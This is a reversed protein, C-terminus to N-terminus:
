EDKSQTSVTQTKTTTTTTTTTPAATKQFAAANNAASAHLLNKFKEQLAKHWPSHLEPHRVREVIALLRDYVPKPVVTEVTRSIGLKKATVVATPEGQAGNPDISSSTLNAWVKSRVKLGKINSLTITGDEAQHLDFTVTKGFNIKDVDPSTIRKTFKDDFKIQVRSDGDATQFIEIKSLGAQKLLTDVAKGFQELNVSRYTKALEILDRIAEPDEDGLETNIKVARHLRLEADRYKHLEIETEALKKLSLALNKDGVESRTAERVAKSWYHQAKKFKGEDFAKQGNESLERWHDIEAWASPHSTALIVLVIAQIQLKVHM